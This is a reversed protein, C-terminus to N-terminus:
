SVSPYFSPIYVLLMSRSATYVLLEHSKCCSGSTRGGEAGDQEVSLRYMRINRNREKRKM